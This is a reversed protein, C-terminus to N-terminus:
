SQTPSGSIPRASRCWSTAPREGSWVGFTYDSYFSSRKGHGRQAYMLVADVVFPDRKWKWWLGKPRGPLYPADRRKIMVGEVADADAGADAPNARAARLRTGTRLRSRRRSMSARRASGRWLRRSRARRETLPLERLDEEGEILLDYARLHAPFEALLKPTVSKRNLRQQLVNFSQVRRERMILLEGDIAGDFRLAEALDPFSESIDEGTRSYLRTIRTGNPRSAAVAQM